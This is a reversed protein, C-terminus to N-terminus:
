EEVEKTEKPQYLIAGIISIFGIFTVIPAVKIRRASFIDPNFVTETSAGGSMLIFGLIVVAVGIALLIFNTKGFALNRKDM